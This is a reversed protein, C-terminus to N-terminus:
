VSWEATALIFTIALAAVGVYETILHKTLRGYLSQQLLHLLLYFVIFLVGGVVVYTLPFFAFVSLAELVLLALVASWFVRPVVTAFARAVVSYTLAGTMFAVGAAAAWLPFRLHFVLGSVGSSFFFFTVSTFLWTWSPYSWETARAMLLLFGAATSFVFLQQLVGRAVFLHFLLVSVLYALPLIVSHWGRTRVDERLVVITGSVLAVLTSVFVPWYLDHRVGGLAELGGLLLLALTFAGRSALISRM